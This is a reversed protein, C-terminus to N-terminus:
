LFSPMPSEEDVMTLDSPDLLQYSRGIKVLTGSCRVLKTAAHAAVATQYDPDGLSLTVNRPRGDIQGAVTVRGVDDSENRDLRIVFGNLDFDDSPSSEKLHRGVESIVKLREASLTVERPVDSSSPRSPSWRFLINLLGQADDSSMLGAVAECLNSSVGRQVLKQLDMGGVAVFEDAMESLFHLSKALNESVIRQFTPADDFLSMQRPTISPTVPSIVTVVYSGRESQGVRLGKVHDVAPAPKKSYWVARRQMTSCAAALILDRSCQAVRVNAEIPLSGDQVDRNAIRIRIVDAFTTTLDFLVQSESRREIIALTRLLESMRLPYDRVATSSPIVVEFDEKGQRLTWVSLSKGPEWGNARLYAQAELPRIQSLAREDIVHVKM